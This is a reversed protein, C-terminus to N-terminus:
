DRGAKFTRKLFNIKGDKNVCDLYDDVAGGCVIGEEGVMGAATGIAAVPFPNVTRGM